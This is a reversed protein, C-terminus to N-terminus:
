PLEGTVPTLSDSHAIQKGNAYVRLGKGRGYKNGTKDWLITLIRNHYRVNDLCFWDWTGHPILPDVEVTTDDRPVLGAIGTIILDCFTSHNYYRDSEKDGLIWTGDDFDLYQGIYPKSNKYHTRAYTLLMEFYDTKNVFKQHYNRLLNALAVLTQSTAYPWVPGNWECTRRGNGDFQPHRQEATTLGYPAKFGKPDNIQLWAQEYGHDPLNFYWPILGIAERVNALKGYEHLVEFFKHDENWLLVQLLSKIRSAQRAYKDTIEDKGANRAIKSIAMAHAYMYSNLPPRANKQHRSGSISEEMGDRVDYQWFLGNTLLKEKEWAQFDEILDYLMDTLFRRDHNVLYYNYIADATWNSYSHLHPARREPGTRYWFKIYQDLYRRNRLWRAEYIHHGLACSITNYKGSHGVKTLFETFVFGDPTNKLHKRFTWWRYYYIQELGADPCEFLPVNTKIWDWSKANPVFNVVTEQEMSNFYDVHHKFEDPKLVPQPAPLADATKRPLWVAMEGAGRNAWTYYPIALIAPDRSTIVTVGGLLDPRFEAKFAASDPLAINRVYGANDAWEACYVIPGRQLAVKGTNNTVKEHALVRRVPMPLLLEIADGKQWARNIRAFGKKIDLPLAKGNLKLTVKEPRNKMFRYLDSPVPQNQAWGPIRINIAFRAPREPTVTIKIQGDWPYRTRQNLTVTNNAMKVTASGAIFLNVYLDNDRHAYAFGPISAMFRLINPPCCACKFWPRRNTGDSALPNQYFFTDGSLSVGSLFGNYIIRELLDIYKAHGKALFLRHNWLANGIAACTENYAKKNPLEYDDGFAEGGHRAGVGGTIYLKKSVVNNWITDAADIYRDDGTLAGVDVMASYLYTARVAHGVAHHQELVPKHDQSYPGYLEHGKPRGRQDLFFKALNLYKQNRTVRYLKVLGIEIEEHGPPFKLRDPGFVSDIRDAFKTAVDLLKRKGTAKYYAAAAEFLHGACYLEHKVKINKWRDQPRRNPVTHFTNLYGDQWQASDIKDILDDIYKQLEADPHTALSYAAGQITKYVDSDNFFLGEFNEEVLGAAKEFNSIRGTQECERFIHPMTVARNTRLRAAWFGGNPDVGTFPVPTVPYEAHAPAAMRM